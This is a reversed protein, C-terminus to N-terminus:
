EDAADSTYLLCIYYTTTNDLETGSVDGTFKVPINLAFVASDGVTIRNTAASTETVSSFSYETFASSDLPTTLTQDTYLAFTNSTLINAWYQQGNVETMGPCNTITVEAGEVLFNEETTTLVAPSAQTINEIYSISTGKSTWTLNGLGDTELVYGISGGSITLNSADGLDIHGGSAGGKNIWTNSSLDYSLIEGDGVPGTIDLNGYAGNIQSFSVASYSTLVEINELGSVTKGVFLRKADSAFGLEAEDLQPLDVLNGSRQQIKSIQVIAM